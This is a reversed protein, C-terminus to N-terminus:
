NKTSRQMPTDGWVNAAMQEPTMRSTATSSALKPRAHKFNGKFTNFLTWESDRRLTLELATDIMKNLTTNDGISIKAYAAVFGLNTGGISKIILGTLAQAGSATASSAYHIIEWHLKDLGNPKTKDEVGKIVLNPFDKMGTPQNNPDYDKPNVPVRENFDLVAEFFVTILGTITDNNISGNLKGNSFSASVGPKALKVGYRNVYNNDFYEKYYTILVQEQTLQGSNSEMTLRGEVRKPDSFLDGFNSSFVNLFDKIECTTIKSPQIDKIDKADKKAKMQAVLHRILATHALTPYIPQQVVTNSADVREAQEPTPTPTKGMSENYLADIAENGNNINMAAKNLNGYSNRIGAESSAQTGAEDYIYASQTTGIPASACGALLMAALLTTALRSHNAACNNMAIVLTRRQNKM